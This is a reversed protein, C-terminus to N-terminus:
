NNEGDLQSLLDQRRAWAKEMFIGLQEYIAEDRCFLWATLQDDAARSVKDDAETVGRNTLSAM